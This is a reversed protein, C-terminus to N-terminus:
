TNVKNKFTNFEEELKNLYKDLHQFHKKCYQVGENWEDINSTFIQFEQELESKYQEICSLYCILKGSRWLYFEGPSNQSNIGDLFSDADYFYQLAAKFNGLHIECNGLNIKLKFNERQNEEAIIKELQKLQEKAQKILDTEQCDSNYYKQSYCYAILNYIEIKYEDWDLM